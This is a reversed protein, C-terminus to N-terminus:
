KANARETLAKMEEACVMEMKKSLDPIMKQAEAENPLNSQIKDMKKDMESIAHKATYSVKGLVFWNLASEAITEIAMDDDVGALIKLTDANEVIEKCNKEVGIWFVRTNDFVVKIKGLTKVAVELSKIAKQLSSHKVGMGALETVTKSLDEAAEFMKKDIDQREKTLALVRADLGNDAKQKDQEKDNGGKGGGSLSDALAGVVNVTNAACKILALAFNRQREADAKQVAEAERQRAEELKIKYHAQMKELQERKEKAEGMRTNIKEREQKSLNAEKLALIVANETTKVLGDARDALKKSEVQMEAAVTACKSVFIMAKDGM